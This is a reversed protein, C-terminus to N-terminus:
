IRGVLITLLNETKNLAVWKHVAAMIDISSCYWLDLVGYFFSNWKWGM